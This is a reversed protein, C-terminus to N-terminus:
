QPMQIVEITMVKAFKNAGRNVGDGKMGAFDLNMDSQTISNHKM